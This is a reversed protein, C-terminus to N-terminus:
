SCAMPLINILEDNVSISLKLKCILNERKRKSLNIQFTMAFDSLHCWQHMDRTNETLLMKHLSVCWNEVVNSANMEITCMLYTIKFFHFISSVNSWSLCTVELYKFLLKIFMITIRSRRKSCNIHPKVIKPTALHAYIVIFTTSARNLDSSLFDIIFDIIQHHTVFTQRHTLQSASDSNPTFPYMISFTNM